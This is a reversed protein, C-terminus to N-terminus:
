TEKIGCLEIGNVELYIYTANSLGLSILRIEKYFRNIHAM